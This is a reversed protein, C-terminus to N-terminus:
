RVRVRVNPVGVTCLTSTLYM